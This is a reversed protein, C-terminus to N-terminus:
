WKKRNYDDDQRTVTIKENNNDWKKGMIIIMRSQWKDRWQWRMEKGNNNDNNDDDQTTLTIEEDETYQCKKADDNCRTESM